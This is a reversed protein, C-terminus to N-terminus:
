STSRPPTPRRSRLRGVVRVAGRGAPGAALMGDRIESAIRRSAVRSRELLGRQRPSQPAGGAYVVQVDVTRGGEVDACFRAKGGEWDWKVSLDDILVAELADPDAEQKEFEFRVTACLRNDVAAQNGLLHVLQEHPSLWRARYTWRVVEGLSCWRLDARLTNLRDIFGLIDRGGRNFADHHAVLLCPKGLLLDFAFNEIGHSMYRRQFLPLGGYALLAPSWADEVTIEDVGFDVAAIETNAAASYGCRKLARMAESSFTGQPFVMVRDYSLRTRRTLADMRSLALWARGDLSGPVRSAFEASTHDCGHVSLSLRSTPERMLRVVRSSTRRWNWPIFAVSACFDHRAAQEALEDFRMFGYRQRLPPDDIVFCSRNHPSRWCLDRLAWTTYMVLPVAVHIYKRVDFYREGLASRVDVVGSASLLFRTGMFQLLAFLDGQDASLVSEYDRVRGPVNLFGHCGGLTADIVLGSMAGCLEPIRDTVTVRVPGAEFSSVRAAPDGSLLQLLRNHSESQDFGHVFVSSAVGFPWPLSGEAELHRLAESLVDASCLVCVDPALVIRDAAGSGAAMNQALRHSPVGFFGLVATLRDDEDLSDPGTLVLTQVAESEGQDSPLM